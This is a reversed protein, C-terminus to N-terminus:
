QPFLEETRMMDRLQMARTGNDWTFVALLGTRTEMVYLAEGGSSIKGTVVQYERDRVAVQADAVRPLLAHAALLLAAGLGLLGIFFNKREM